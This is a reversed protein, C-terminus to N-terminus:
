RSTIVIQPISADEKVQELYDNDNFNDSSQDKDDELFHM